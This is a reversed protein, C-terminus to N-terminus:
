ENIAYRGIAKVQRMVTALNPCGGKSVFEFAGVFQVVSTRGHALSLSFSNGKM